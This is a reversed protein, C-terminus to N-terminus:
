SDLATLGKRLISMKLKRKSKLYGLKPIYKPLYPRNFDARNCQFSTPLVAKQKQVINAKQNGGKGNAM